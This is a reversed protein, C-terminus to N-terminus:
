KFNKREQQLTNVTGHGLYLKNNAPNIIGCTASLDWSTWTQTYTNYRYAVPSYTDSASDVTWLIYSKDTEYAVAFTVTSFNVASTVFPVLKDEIPRSILEANTENV